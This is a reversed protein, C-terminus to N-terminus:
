PGAGAAPVTGPRLHLEERVQLYRVIDARSLLGAVRGDRVVPLQHLGSEAMLRIAERLDADPAVTRLPVATMITSVPTTPWADQPLQKADGLTVIGVLRGAEVVPLARHGRQLVDGFVFDQVSLGPTALAPSPDMLASVPVGQLVERRLEEQRTSEAAGNLFWGIFATWLGGLFDGGLLRALGWFILLWGVAQGAYSAVVTARRLDGTAGWVLSRLVRGGDLPFGPVLNFAGLLLNVFALYGLVAGVASDPAFGQGLLWFIGALVLSSVPGVVAVLFEDRASTAETRLNSVGGFIFLTISDVTLGRARAVLSHSLEHLLVSAFLLLAAIIGLAWDTGAGAGPVAGPFYGVALSWAILAFAFLWTYHIGIDIGALRGLRVSSHM